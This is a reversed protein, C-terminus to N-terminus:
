LVYEGKVFEYPLTYDKNDYHYAARDFVQQLEKTWAKMTDTSVLFPYYQNFKDIVLFRFETKYGQKVLDSFTNLVLLNYIAAQIDYRYTKVSDTFEKLTKSSTKIDTIRIIGSGADIVINDLMGKIGFSYKKLDIQLMRENYVEKSDWWKDGEKIQLLEVIAPDLKMKEVLATCREFMMPDVISKGNAKVLFTWYIVNDATVIKEIRQQDTKLSQHLNMDMLVDVIADGYEALSTKQTAGSQLLDLHHAFVREIVTRANDGPLKGTMVVFQEDFKEPELLLNHIIKGEMLYAATLEEKEGLIYEKYFIEPCNLLRQLSSYSFYFKREYFNDLPSTSSFTTLEM